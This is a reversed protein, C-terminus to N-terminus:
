KDNVLAWRMVERWLIFGLQMGVIKSVNQQEPVNSFDPTYGTVIDYTIVAGLSHAIVSVKGGRTIFDPNRKVFNAYIRNLENRLANTIESRYLPSTYYMIDM